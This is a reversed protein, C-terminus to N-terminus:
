LPRIVGFLVGALVWGCFMIGAIAYPLLLARRRAEMSTPWRGDVPNLIRTWRDAWVTVIAALLTFGFIFFGIAGSLLGARPPPDVFAFYTFSVLAGILNAPILVAM